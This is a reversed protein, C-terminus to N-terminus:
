LTNTSFESIFQANNLELVLTTVHNYLVCTAVGLSPYWIVVPRMRMLLTRESANAVHM